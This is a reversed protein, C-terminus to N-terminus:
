TARGAEDTSLAVSSLRSQARPESLSAALRGRERLRRAQEEEDSPAFESNDRQRDATRQVGDLYTMLTSDGAVASTHAARAVMWAEVDVRKYYIPKGDRFWAPGLGKDRMGCLTSLPIGLIKSVDKPRLLDGNVTKASRPKYAKRPRGTPMSLAYTVAAIVVLSVIFLWAITQPSM